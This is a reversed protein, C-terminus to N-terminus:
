TTLSPLSGMMLLSHDEALHLYIQTVRIDSHGLWSRLTDLPVGNMAAHAAFTHRLTHPTAGTLGIGGCVMKLRGRLVNYSQLPFHQPTLFERLRPHLPVVRDKRSKTKRVHLVNARLDLDEVRLKCLEGPRLGTHLAIMVFSYLAPYRECAGLLQRAEERSLFRPVQNSHLRLLRIKPKSTLYGKEIAYSLLSSTALLQNNITKDKVGEGRRVTKFREIAGFDIRDVKVNGLVRLLDKFATQYVKWTNRERNTKYYQMGMGVLDQLRPVELLPTGDEVTWTRTFQELKAVASEYDTTRCSHQAIRRTGHYVRIKYIESRPDRWLIPDAM